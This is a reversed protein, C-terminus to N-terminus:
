VKRFPDTKSSTLMLFLRDELLSISWRTLNRAGFNYEGRHVYTFEGIGLFGASALFLATHLNAGELTNTKFQSLLRLLIDRTIPQQERTEKRQGEDAKAESNPKRARIEWGGVGIGARQRMYLPLNKTSLLTPSGPRWVAAGPAHQRETCTSLVCRRHRLGAVGLHAPM